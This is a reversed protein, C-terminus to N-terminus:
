PARREPRCRSSGDALDAYRIESSTGVLSTFALLSGSLHPDTQNGAGTGAPVPQEETALPQAPGPDVASAVGVPGALVVLVGAVAGAIWRKM